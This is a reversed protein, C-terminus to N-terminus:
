PARYKSRPTGFCCPVRYTREVKPADFEWNDLVFLRDDGVYRYSKERAYVFCWWNAKVRLYGGSKCLDYVGEIDHVGLNIDLISNLEVVGMIIKFGNSMLQCPCLNWKRLCIRLLPHLPFRVGGEIVTVLMFPMWGSTFTLGYFPNELDDLRIQVDDPIRYRARFEAM